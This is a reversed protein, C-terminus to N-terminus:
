RSCSLRVQTLLFYHIFFPFQRTGLRTMRKCGFTMLIRLETFSQKLTSHFFKTNKDGKELWKVHAKQKWCKEDMALQCQLLNQANYFKNLAKESDDLQLKIEVEELKLETLKVRQFIDGFYKKNWRKLAAKVKKLKSALVSLLSGRLEVEWAERVVWLFNAQDTWVNLFRFPRPKNDSKVRTSLLLPVYDSPLRALHRLSTVFGIDSCM